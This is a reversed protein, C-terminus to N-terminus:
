PHFGPAMLFSFIPLRSQLWPVDDKFVLSRVLFSLVCGLSMPRECIFILLALITFSLALM